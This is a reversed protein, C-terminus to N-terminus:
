RIIKPIWCKVSKKYKAYEKGFRLSLNKEEIPRVVFHWLFAGFLSYALIYVSEFYISISIGQGIGAVAMPNRIYKYPGSVVLKKTQDLPLPTGKGLTVFMFASSLGILSFAIFLISSLFLHDGIITKETFSQLIIGPIIVLTILWICFIQIITKLGNIISSESNSERFSKDQFVLFLNYFLGLSMLTTALYGGNSLITANICYLSAFAFGGLIIYELEKRNNYARILSLLVIIIFDPILFSNFAVKGIGPFQFARYFSSETLLALWWFLIITAQILYATSKLNKM